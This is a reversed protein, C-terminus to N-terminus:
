DSRPAFPVLTTPPRFIAVITGVLAITAFSFWQIAYSLHPGEDLPPPAIRSPVTFSATSTDGELVVIYPAIPYGAWRSLLDRDIWRVEDPHGVRTATQPLPGPLLQVRGIATVTDPERWQSREVNEGDASYVWGRDVLIATDTGVQRLPTILNVGPSGERSRNAWAFEHGYDYQGAVTVRRFHALATDSPLAAVTVPPEALREVVMANRAIREQRRSLQWVGLRAFLAASAVAFALFVINRPRFRESVASV